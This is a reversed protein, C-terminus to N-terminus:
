VLIDCAKKYSTSCIEIGSRSKSKLNLIYSTTREFIRYQLRLNKAYRKSNELDEYVNLLYYFM